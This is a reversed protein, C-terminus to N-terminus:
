CLSSFELGVQYEEEWRNSTTDSVTSKWEPHVFIRDARIGSSLLAIYCHLCPPLSVQVSYGDDLVNALANAVMNKVAPAFLHYTKGNHIFNGANMVDQCFMLRRQNMKDKLYNIHSQLQYRLCDSFGDYGMAILSNHRSFLAAYNTNQNPNLNDLMEFLSLLKKDLRVCYQISHMIYQTSNFFNLEDQSLHDQSIQLNIGCTHFLHFLLDFIDVNISKVVVQKIGISAICRAEEMSNIRSLLLYNGNQSDGSSLNIQVNEHAFNFLMNQEAHEFFDYKYLPIPYEFEDVLFKKSRDKNQYYDCQDNMGRPLGNYGFSVLSGYKNLMMASVKTSKDKSLPNIALLNFQRNINNYHIVEAYESKEDHDCQCCQCM